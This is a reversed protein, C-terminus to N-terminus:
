EGRLAVIPDKRAAKLAPIVSFILGVAISVGVALLIIPVNIVPHLNTYLRLMLNILLSLIVGILGGVVTLVLGETLFQNLIQRNTAGIAKRVGIERTRESISVLMIDMIGIGGVLLSIAAIASIFGTLTNVLGTLLALLEAQKLVSFDEQGSHSALLAQHIDSITTNIDKSDKARALIQVINTQGSGLARAMSFNMFIVSNFDTEGISLLGGSSQALVGRVIFSQGSINVTEGVANAENFLQKAISRGIVVTNQNDPSTDLFNGYQVNQRILDLLDPSTGMVFINDVQNGNASVSGTLFDLPAVESVTALNKIADIDKATLTSSNLFALLNLNTLSTGAQDRVLRGSRVTLVDSGLHNIQGVVQNKLGEGLSVVTVVSTIGIIIGLMTLLSRWKYLRLYSFATKFNGSWM